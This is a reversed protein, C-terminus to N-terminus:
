GCGSANLGRIVEKIRAQVTALRKASHVRHALARRAGPSKQEWAAKAAPAANLARRLDDPMDVADQDAVTFRVEVRDGVGFAGAKLVGKSLMLYHKGHTPQFAGSVPVEGVTANIRLRPYSDFPLASAIKEPLFVVNYFLSRSTPTPKKPAIEHRIVETEFTFETERDLAPSPTPRRPPSVSSM